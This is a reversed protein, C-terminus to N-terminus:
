FTDIKVMPLIINTYDENNISKKKKLVENMKYLFWICWQGCNDENFHQLQFTSYFIEGDLYASLNLDPPLGFSDFAYLKNMWKFWCTWHMDDQTHKKSGMIGCEIKKPKGIKNFEDRFIVGRFNKFKLKIAEKELEINSTM